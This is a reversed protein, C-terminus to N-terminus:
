GFTTSTGQEDEVSSVRVGGDGTDRLRGVFRTGEAVALRDSLWTTASQRHAPDGEEAEDLLLVNIGRRRATDVSDRLRSDSTLRPTRMQDRLAGELVLMQRRDEETFQRGVAIAQLTPGAQDLVQEIATRRAGARAQAVEEETRRRRQVSRFAASAANSRRLSVALATGVALTAIHRVVILLGAVPPMGHLGAWCVCSLVIIAMTWWAARFSGVITFGLLDFTVAGLFWAQYGDAALEPPLGSLGSVTAAALVASLLVASRGTLTPTRRLILFFQVGALLVLSLVDRSHVGEGGFALVAHVVVFLVLYGVGGGLVSRLALRAIRTASATM